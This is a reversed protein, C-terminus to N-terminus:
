GFAATLVVILWCNKLICDSLQIVLSVLIFMTRDFGQTCTNSDQVLCNATCSVEEQLMVLVLPPHLQENLGALGVSGQVQAVLVIDGDSLDTESVEQEQQTIQLM